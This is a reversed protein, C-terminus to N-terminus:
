SSIPPPTLSLLSSPNYPFPLENTGSNVWIGARWITPNVLTSIPFSPHNTSPYGIRAVNKLNKRIDEWNVFSGALFVPNGGMIVLHDIDKDKIKSILDSIGGPSADTPLYHITNGISGLAQNILFAAVQVEELLHNGALAVSNTPEAGLDEVCPEIWPLHAEASKGLEKLRKVLAEDGQRVSLILLLSSDLHPFNPLISVVGIIPSAGTLTLDAEVSYLRNMKKADSPNSVKRGAM